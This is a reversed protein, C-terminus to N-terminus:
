GRKELLTTHKKGGKTLAGKEVGEQAAVKVEGEERRNKKARDGGKAGAHCVVQLISLNKVIRGRGGERFWTIVWKGKKKRSGRGLKDTEDKGRLFPFEGILSADNRSGGPGGAWPVGCEQFSNRGRASQSNRGGM